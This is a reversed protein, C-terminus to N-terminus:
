FLFSELIHITEKKILVDFWKNKSLRYFNISPRNWFRYNVLSVGIGSSIYLDIGDIVYHEDYYERAGEPTYLAGIIPLRIQGNHSHGAM